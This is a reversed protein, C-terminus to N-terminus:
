YSRSTNIFPVLIVYLFVAGAVWISLTFVWSTFSSTVNAVSSPRITYDGTYWASALMAMYLSTLVM